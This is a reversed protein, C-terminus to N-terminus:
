LMKLLQENKKRKEAGFCVLMQILYGLGADCKDSLRLGNDRTFMVGGTFNPALVLFVFRGAVSLSLDRLLTHSIVAVM